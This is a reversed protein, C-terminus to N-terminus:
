KNIPKAFEGLSKEKLKLLGSRYLPMQINDRINKDQSWEGDYVLPKMIHHEFWKRTWLHNPLYKQTESYITENLNEPKSNDASKTFVEKFEAYTTNLKEPHEMVLNRYIQKLKTERVREYFSKWSKNIKEDIVEDVIAATYFRIRETKNNNIIEAIEGKQEPLRQKAYNHWTEISEELESYTRSNTNDEDKLLEGAYLKVKEMATQQYDRAKEDKQILEDLSSYKKVDQFEQMQAARQLDAWSEKRSCSSNLVAGIALAVLYKKSNM